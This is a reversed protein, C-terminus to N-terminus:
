VRVAMAEAGMSWLLFFTIRTRKDSLQIPHKRWVEEVEILSNPIEGNKLLTCDFWWTDTVGADIMMEQASGM